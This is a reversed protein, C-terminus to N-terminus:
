KVERVHIVAPNKEQGWTPEGRYCTPYPNGPSDLIWFERPKVKPKLRRCQRPHVSSARGNRSVTVGIDDAASVTAHGNEWFGGKSDWGCITVRDGAKFKSM